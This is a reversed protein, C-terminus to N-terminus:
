FHLPLIHYDYIATVEPNSLYERLNDETFSTMGPYRANLWEGFAPTKVRDINDMTSLLFDFGLVLLEVADERTKLVTVSKSWMFDAVMSWAITGQPIALGKVKFIVHERLFSKYNEPKGDELIRAIDNEMMQLEQPSSFRNFDDALFKGSPSEDLMLKQMISQRLAALGKQHYQMAFAKFLVDFFKIFPLRAEAGQPSDHKRHPNWANQKLVILQKRQQPTIWNLFIRNLSFGSVIDVDVKALSWNPIDEPRQSIGIQVPKEGRTIVDPLTNRGNYRIMYTTEVGQTLAVYQRHPNETHFAQPYHLDLLRHFVQLDNCIRAYLRNTRCMTLVDRPPLNILIMELPGRDLLAFKERAFHGVKEQQLMELDDARLGKEVMMSVIRRKDESSKVQFASNNLIARAKAVRQERLADM